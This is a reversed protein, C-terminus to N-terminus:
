RERFTHAIQDKLLLMAALAEADGEYVFGTNGGVLPLAGLSTNLDVVRSLWRPLHENIFRLKGFLSQRSASDVAASSKSMMLSDYFKKFRCQHDKVLLVLWTAGQKRSKEVVVSVGNKICWLIGPKEPDESLIAREQQRWCIFPGASDTLDPNCQWAFTNIYFIIDAACAQWLAQQLEPNTKAKELVFRRWRLNAKLERPVRKYFDPKLM